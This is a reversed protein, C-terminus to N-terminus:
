RILELNSLSLWKDTPESQFSGNHSIWEDSVLDYIDCLIEGQWIVLCPEGYGPRAEALSRWKLTNALQYAYELDVNINHIM